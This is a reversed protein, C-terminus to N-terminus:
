DHRQVFEGLWDISLFTSPLYSDNSIEIDVEENRGMIPIPFTGSSVPIVGIKSTATGALKGTFEFISQIQTDHYKPIVITKFQGTNAYSVTIDRLILTGEKVRFTNNQLQERVYIETLKITSTYVHGIIVSNIDGELVLISPTLEKIVQPFGKFDLVKFDDTYNTADYPMNFLTTDTEPDYAGDTLTIKRDLFINHNLDKEKLDPTFDLRELCVGDDYGTLVYLFHNDFDTYLIEGKDLLWKSFASQAKTEGSYYFNHIGIEHRNQESLLCAINNASSASIKYTNPALYGTVQETVERADLNYTSTTYIEYMRTYGGNEFVYFATNGVNVPKCNKSCNYEMALDMSVTKNSFVDGGSLVFEAKESFLLLDENFPIVHKLLVMKSNSGVDIPDTDLETLITKKFFSFIDQTDSYISRDGSIFALRSKHTFVEQIANGIFSPTPASDEDGSGRETWDLHKFTFTGDAERVLAHPMTDSDIKYQIDPQCSEEWTGTGFDSGDATKFQVYYDDDNSTDAGVIKLIFGNPAVLPLTNSDKTENYFSYLNRDSNSDKTQITFTEGDKRKLLICSNKLVIDWDTTGLNNKLDNYLDNAITNTKTTAIDNSSTTYSAVSRNNVSVEYDIAYDGQKIFILAGNKHPNPYKEDTLKTKIKKNLIFTYDAITVLALDHLPNDTTIYSYTSDQSLNVNKKNGELDFVSVGDGTLIVIYKEDEKLIIHSQPHKSLKPLLKKIHETPPRKELGKRPNLYFNFIEKAQYPLRLKKPQQSVGGILNAITDKVLM